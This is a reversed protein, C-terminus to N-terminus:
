RRKTAGRYNMFYISLRVRGVSERSSHLYILQQTRSLFRFSDALSVLVMIVTDVVSRM